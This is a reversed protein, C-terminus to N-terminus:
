TAQSPKHSFSPRAKPTSNCTFQSARGEVTHCFIAPETRRVDLWERMKSLVTVLDEAYRRVEVSWLM